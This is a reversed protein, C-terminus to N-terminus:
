EYTVHNWFEFGSNSAIQILPSLVKYYKDKFELYPKQVIDNIGSGLIMYDELLKMNPNKKFVTNVADYQMKVFSDFYRELPPLKNSKSCNVSRDAPILNWMQDHSVFSWPIFHEVDFDRAQLSKGTYICKLSGTEGLVLNWFDRQKNLSGRTIPKILKNGINPVNPNRTQLYQLLNWYSFDLLIKNNTTLYGVWHPNIEIYKKNNTNLSYLCDDKFFQSQEVVERKSGKIWPSLFRFPVHQDFHLILSNVFPDTSTQLIDYLDSLSVDIPINLVSQITDINQDLKDSYGFNLKFYNIPYWANCIMRVLIDRIPIHRDGREAFLQLLSIFWYFKYSATTNNFVSSLKNTQINSNQPLIYPM